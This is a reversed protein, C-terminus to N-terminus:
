NINLKKVSLKFLLRSFDKFGLGKTFINALQNQSSVHLTRLFGLQIKERILYCDIEIHKIREHYIPNAAIHLAYKSDCFLLAAKPHPINFDHLLSFFFFFFAV